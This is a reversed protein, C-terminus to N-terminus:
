TCSSAHRGASRWALRGSGHMEKPAEGTACTFPTRIHPCPGHSCPNRGRRTPYPPGRELNAIRGPGSKNIAFLKASAMGGGNTWPYPAFPLLIKCCHPSTRRSGVRGSATHPLPAVTGRQAAAARPLLSGARIWSKKPTTICQFHPYRDDQEADGLHRLRGLAGFPGKTPGQNAKAHAARAKKAPASVGHCSKTGPESAVIAWRRRCQSSLRARLVCCAM